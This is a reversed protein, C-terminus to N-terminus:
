NNGFEKVGMLESVVYGLACFGFYIGYITSDKCDVKQLVFFRFCNQLASYMKHRQCIKWGCPCKSWCPKHTLARYAKLRFNSEPNVPKCLRTTSM